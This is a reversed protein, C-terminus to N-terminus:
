NLSLVGQGRKMVPLNNGERRFCRLHAACSRMRDSLQQETLVDLIWKASIKRKGLKETLITHISSSSTGMHNALEECTSHNNDEFLAIVHTVHEEDRATNPRGSREVNEVSASSACFM